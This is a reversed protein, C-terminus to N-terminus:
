SITRRAGQDRDPGPQGRGTRGQVVYDNIGDKVYPRRQRRRVAARPQDRERHLAAPRRGRLLLYYDALRIGSSRTPTVPMVGHGAGTSEKCSRSAAATRGRGPTASGSHRCCTCRAGGRARPQRRQDPDPPRGAGAKAYEVFVDFYRDDDFVGTDLLEYELEQAAATATPRRGPRRLSLRGASVQLSVEHVLPDAHQRPLLLVGQRGRRPQGRQQDARVAAGQPDPRPREVPGPRLLAGPPRRLDRGPRGRGLPLGALPGPRPHLLELRRREDSYDERVTGWQRESLYPGWKKWDAKGERGEKLRSGEITM